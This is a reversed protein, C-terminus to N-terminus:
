QNWSLGTWGTEAAPNTTTGTPESQDDLVALSTVIVDIDAFDVFKIEPKAMKKM